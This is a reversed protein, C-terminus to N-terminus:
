STSREHDKPILKEAIVPNKVRERIREAIYDSFEANAEEDVFIEVTGAPPLTGAGATPIPKRRIQESM